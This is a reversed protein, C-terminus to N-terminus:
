VSESVCKCECVCESVFVCLRVPTEGNRASERSRVLSFITFPLTLKGLLFKLVTEPFALSIRVCSSTTFLDHTKYRLTSNYNKYLTACECNNIHLFLYIQTPKKPQALLMIIIDADISSLLLLIYNYIYIRIHMHM